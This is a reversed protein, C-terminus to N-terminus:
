SLVYNTIYCKRLTGMQCAVRLYKEYVFSPCSECVFIRDIQLRGRKALGDAVGNAEQYIHAPLIIWERTILSKCDNILVYLQPVYAGNHTLWQMTLTSDMQLNIHKFGLNRALNLGLMDWVLHNILSSNNCVM